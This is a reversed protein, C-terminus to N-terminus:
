FFHVHDKWNYNDNKPEGYFDPSRLKMLISNVVDSSVSLSKDIYVTQYRYGRCGETYKKARYTGITTKVHDKTRKIISREPLFSVLENMKAEAKLQDDSFIMTNVHTANMSM